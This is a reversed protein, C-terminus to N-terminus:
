AALRQPWRANALVSLRDGERDRGVNTQSCPQLNKVNGAGLRHVATCRCKNYILTELACLTSFTASAITLNKGVHCLARGYSCMQLDRQVKKQFVVALLGCVGRTSALQLRLIGKVLDSASKGTQIFHAQQWMCEFRHKPWDPQVDLQLKCAKQLM